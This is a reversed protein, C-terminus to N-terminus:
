RHSPQCVETDMERSMHPDDHRVTAQSKAASRSSVSPTRSAPGISDGVSGNAETGKGEDLTELFGRM